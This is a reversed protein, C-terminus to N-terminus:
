STAFPQRSPQLMKPVTEGITASSSRMMALLSCFNTPFTDKKVYCAGLRM